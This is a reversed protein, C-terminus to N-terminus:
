VSRYVVVGDDLDFDFQLQFHLVSTARQWGDGVDEVYLGLKEAIRHSDYPHIDIAYAEGTLHGGRIPTIPVSMTEVVAQYAARRADHVDPYQRMSVMRTDGTLASHLLDRDFEWNDEMQALDEVIAVILQELEETVDNKNDWTHPHEGWAESDPEHIKILERQVVQSEPSFKPIVFTSVSFKPPDNATSPQTMASVSKLMGYIERGGEAALSSDVFMYPNYFGFREAKFVGDVERGAMVPVWFAFDREPMWGRNVVPDRPHLKEIQAAIFCVLPVFPRYEVPSARDFNLESDCLAQLAEMRAGTVFWNLTAGKARFPQLPLLDGDRPIYQGPSLTRATTPADPPADNPEFVHRRRHPLDDMWEGVIVRPLGCIARSAHMGSAVTAEVCGASFGNLTWDGTLILNDYGSEDPRLRHKTSGAVSLVYRDSPNWDAIWYQDQLREVGSRELTDALWNWNLGAPNDTTGAFPWLYGIDEQLFRHVNAAVRDLVRFPYQHDDRPPPRFGPEDLLRACFYGLNGVTVPPWNEREILHSMDSWSDFPETYGVAVPKAMPWGLKPLDPTMWLQLGQTLTTEVKGIMTRFRPNKPDDILDKCIYPLAGLSIGLVVRDFDKGAQLTKPPVPDKWTTWWNELNVNHEQLADGEKLQEYLAESPWCPLGKVDYLPHYEDGKLTAQQGVTIREVRRKGSADPESLELNDVRQFFEFRVGRRKLVTYLPAFITDGMGAQMEWLIAGKYTFLLRLMLYLTTGAAGTTDTSFAASRMARIPASDVSAQRAGHRMLWARIDEDDLKQWDVPPLIMDDTLMGIFAALGLDLLTFAQFTEWNSDAEKAVLGLLTTRFRQALFRLTAHHTQTHAEPNKPMRAALRQAFHLFGLDVSAIPEALKGVLRLQELVSHGLAELLSSHAALSLDGTALTEIHSALGELSNLTSTVHQNRSRLWWRDFVDVMMGLLEQLLAWPDILPSGDGPTDSNEPAPLLWQRWQGQFEQEAVVFSRKKFAQEWTSLPADPHRGLEQYVARMVSFANEYFGFLIHLGHEEIRDHHKRNRGSACKGGLRWGMQYVTIDYRDRWGAQNTVEFATVLSSVGGGLIAIKEKALAAM